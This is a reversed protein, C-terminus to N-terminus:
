INITFYIGASSAINELFILELQNINKVKTKAKVKTKKIIKERM